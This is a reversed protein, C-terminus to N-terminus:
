AGGHLLLADACIQDSMPVADPPSGLLSIFTMGSFM